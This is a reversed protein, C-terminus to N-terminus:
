KQNKIKFIEQNVKRLKTFEYSKDSKDLRGLDSFAELHNIVDETIVEEEMSKLIEESWSWDADKNCSYVIWTYEGDIKYIDFPFLRCDFPRYQYISCGGEKNWFVCEESDSKKKLAYGKTNKIFVKDAFNDHGAENIKEFEKTTLFPTVYNNCCSSHKCKDCLGNWLSSKM